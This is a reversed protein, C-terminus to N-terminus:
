EIERLIRTAAELRKLYEKTQEQTRLTSTTHVRLNTGNFILTVPEFYPKNPDSQLATPQQIISSIIGINVKGGHAEIVSKVKEKYTLISNM